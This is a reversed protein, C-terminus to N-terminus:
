RGLLDQKALRRSRRWASREAPRSLIANSQFPRKGKWNLMPYGRIPEFEYSEVSDVDETVNFQTQEAM